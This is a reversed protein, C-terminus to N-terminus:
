TQVRDCPEHRSQDSLNQARDHSGVGVDDDSVAFGDAADDTHLVVFVSPVPRGTVAISGARARLLGALTKVFTSKGQANIM